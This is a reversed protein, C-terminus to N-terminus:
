KKRDIVALTLRSVCTLKGSDNKLKIEWVQTSRGIHIPRAIAEVKGEWTKALHNANIELGVCVKDAEVTLNGALSGLSEALVVSAGGHLIGYPQRTRDDVPMTGIIYDDGIETLEIGLNRALSNDYRDNLEELSYKQKWISM